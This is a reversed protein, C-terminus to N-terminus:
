LIWQQMIERTYLQPKRAAKMHCNIDFYRIVQIEDKVDLVTFRAWQRSKLKRTTEIKLKWGCGHCVETKIVLSTTPWVHGCSLCSTWMRNRYGIHEICNKMAWPELKEALEPLSMSLKYVLMHRKTRPKM